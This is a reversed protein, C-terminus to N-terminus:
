SRHGHLLVINGHMESTRMMMTPLSLSSSALWYLRCLHGLHLEIRKSSRAHILVRALSLEIGQLNISSVQRWKNVGNEFEQKLCVPDAEFKLLNEELTIQENDLAAVKANIDDVQARKEAFNKMTASKDLNSVLM